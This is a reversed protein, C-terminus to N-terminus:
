GNAPRRRANTRPAGGFPALLLLCRLQPARTLASRRLARALRRSGGASPISPLARCECFICYAMYAWARSNLVQPRTTPLVGLGAVISDGLIWVPAQHRAGRVLAVLRPCRMYHDIDDGQAAGCACVCAGAVGQMRQSTPWARALLRVQALAVFLPLDRLCWRLRTCALEVMGPTPDHM